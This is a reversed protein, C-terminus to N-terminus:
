SRTSLPDIRAAAYWRVVEYICEETRSYATPVRKTGVDLVHSYFFRRPCREFSRLESDSVSLEDGWAIELPAFAAGPTPSAVGTFTQETSTSALWALFPSATRKKGNGQKRAAHLRLHTHM